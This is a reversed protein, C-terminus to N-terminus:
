RRRSFPVRSPGNERLRPARIARVSSFGTRRQSSARAASATQLCSRVLSEKRVPTGRLRRGPRGRAPPRGTLGWEALPRRRSIGTMLSSSSAERNRLVGSTAMVPVLPLVVTVVSMPSIRACAPFLTKTPPLMPSGASRSRPRGGPPRIPPRRPSCNGAGTSAPNGGRHREKRFM